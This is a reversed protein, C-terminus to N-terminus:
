QVKLSNRIFLFFSVSSRIQEKYSNKGRNGLPWLCHKGEVQEMYNM